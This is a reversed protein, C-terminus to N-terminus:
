TNLNIPFLSGFLYALHFFFRNYRNVQFQILSEILLVLCLFIVKVGTIVVIEIRSVEYYSKQSNHWSLAMSNYTVTVSGFM